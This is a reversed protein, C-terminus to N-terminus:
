IDGSIDIRATPFYVYTRYFNEYIPLEDVESQDQPIVPKVDDWGANLEDQSFWLVM